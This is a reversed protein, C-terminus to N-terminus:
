FIEMLGNSHINAIEKEFITTISRKGKGQSDKIKGGWVM